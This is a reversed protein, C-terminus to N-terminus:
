GALMQPFGIVNEWWLLCKHESKVVFLGWRRASFRTQPPSKERKGLHSKRGTHKRQVWLPSKQWVAILRPTIEVVSHYHSLQLREDSTKPSDAGPRKLFCNSSHSHRFVLCATPELWWRRKSIESVSGHSDTARARIRLRVIKTPFLEFVGYDM